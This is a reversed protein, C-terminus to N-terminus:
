HLPDEQKTEEEPVELEPEIFDQLFPDANFPKDEALLVTTGADEDIIGLRKEGEIEQIELTGREIVIRDKMEVLTAAVLRPDKKAVSTGDVSITGIRRLETVLLDCLDAVDYMGDLAIDLMYAITALCEEFNRGKIAENYILPHKPLEDRLAVLSAPPEKHEIREDSM